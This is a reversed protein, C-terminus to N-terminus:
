RNSLPHCTLLSGNAYTGSLHDPDFGFCAKSGQQQAPRCDFRSEAWTTYSKSQSNTAHLVSQRPVSQMALALIGEAFSDSISFMTTEEATALLVYELLTESVCHSAAVSVPKLCVIRNSSMCSPVSRVGVPSSKAFRSPLLQCRLSATSSQPGKGFRCSRRADCHRWNCCLRKQPRRIM